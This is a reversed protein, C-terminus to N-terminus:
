SWTRIVKNFIGQGACDYIYFIVITDTGPLKVQKTSVEVGITQLFLIYLHALLWMPNTILVRIKM